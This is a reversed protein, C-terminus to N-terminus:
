VGGRLTEFDNVRAAGEALDDGHDWQATRAVRAWTRGSYTSETGSESKRNRVGIEEGRLLMGGRGVM